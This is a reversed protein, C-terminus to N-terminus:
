DASGFCSAIGYAGTASDEAIVKSGKKIRCTASGGTSDLSVTISTWKLVGNIQVDKTWPLRTDEVRSSNANGHDYSIDATGSGTVEYTISIESNLEKDAAYIVTGVLAVCGGVVVLIVLLVGGLVWPWVPKRPPPPQYPPYGYGPYQPPPYAM